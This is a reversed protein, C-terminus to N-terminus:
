AEKEFRLPARQLEGGQGVAAGPAAPADRGARECAERPTFRWTAPRRLDALLAEQAQAKQRHLLFDRHFDAQQDQATEHTM